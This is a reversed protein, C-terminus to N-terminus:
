WGRTDGQTEGEDGQHGGEPTGGHGGGPPQDQVGGRLLGQGAAGVAVLLERHNPEGRTLGGMRMRMRMKVKVRMKMMMRMKM